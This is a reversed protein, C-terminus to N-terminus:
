QTGFIKTFPILKEWIFIVKGNDSKKAFDLRCVVIIKSTVNFIERVLRVSTIRTSSAFSLLKLAVTSAFSLWKLAVTSAFSLWKLAVTSAFSLWKLAVTSAFSLWKYTSCYKGFFAM